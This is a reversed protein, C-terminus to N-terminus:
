LTYSYSNVTSVVSMSQRQGARITMQLNCQKQNVCFQMYTHVYGQANDLGVKMLCLIDYAPM